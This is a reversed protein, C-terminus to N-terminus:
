PLRCTHRTSSLCSSTSSSALRPAGDHDQRRNPHLPRHWLDTPEESNHNGQVVIIMALWVKVCPISVLLSSEGYFVQRRTCSPEHNLPGSLM